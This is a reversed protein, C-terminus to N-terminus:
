GPRFGRLVRLHDLLLEVLAVPAGAEDLAVLAGALERVPLESRVSERPIARGHRAHVVGAEDLVLHPLSRCVRALPSIRARLALDADPDALLEGRAADGDSLARARRADGARRLHEFGVAGELTFAGNHTRRLASLHGVTGLAEALDRAFSRVYFGPGSRLSLDIEDGRVAHIEVEDLRVSRVPAQVQEGRRARKYLTTGDVKLASVVPARQEITGVFRAAVAAVDALALTPVPATADVEGEADLTHTATGLRVTAEYRKSSAGLASVLKTAEGIALVLVGTAMPDLTGTHGIQRTGLARRALGVVDHSTPGRAKDVVLLGDLEADKTM